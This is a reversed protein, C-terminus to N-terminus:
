QEMYVLAKTEAQKALGLQRIVAEKMIDKQIKHAHVCDYASKWATYINRYHLALEKEEYKTFFKWAYYKLAAYTGLAYELGWTDETLKEDVFAILADYADLGGVYESYEEGRLHSVALAKTDSILQAGPKERSGTVTLVSLIPIDLKGLKEYPLESEQGDIRLTSFVNRQMDYGTLLGWECGSIDWAIAAIESRISDCILDIAKLRSSEEMAEQNWLREIYACKLGSNEIWIKQKKFEWTSTASLCLQEADIWMRFAFGSSAVVDDAYARYISCRLAASLCKILSFLYGTPDETNQFNVHIKEAHKERGIRKM